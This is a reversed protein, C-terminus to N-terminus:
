AGRRPAGPPGDSVRGQMPIAMKLEQQVKQPGWERTHNFMSMAISPAIPRHLLQLARKPRCEGKAMATAGNSEPKTDVYARHANTRNSLSM